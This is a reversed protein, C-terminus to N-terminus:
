WLSKKDLEKILDLWMRKVNLTPLDTYYLTTKEVLNQPLITQMKTKLDPKVIVLNKM